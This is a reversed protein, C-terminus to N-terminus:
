ASARRERTDEVCTLSKWDDYPYWNSVSMINFVKGDYRIQDPEEQTSVNSLEIDKVFVTIINKSQDIGIRKAMDIPNSIGRANFSFTLGPQVAGTTPVWESYTPITNGIDNTQFSVVTRYEFSSKPVIRLAKKLLNGFAAM